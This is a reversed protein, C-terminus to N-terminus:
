KKKSDGKDGKAPTGSYGHDIGQKDNTTKKTNQTTAM